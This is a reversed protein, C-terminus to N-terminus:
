RFRDNFYFRINIENKCINRINQIFKQIKPYIIRVHQDTICATFRIKQTISIYYDSSKLRCM